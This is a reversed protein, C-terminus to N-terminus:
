GADDRGAVPAVRAVLPVVAELQELYHTPSHHVFNLQLATAGAGTLREIARVTRDPDDVPDVPRGNQLVV